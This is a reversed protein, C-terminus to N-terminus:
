VLNGLLLVRSLAGLQLVKLVTEPLQELIFRIEFELFVKGPVLILPVVELLQFIVIIALLLEINDVFYECLLTLPVCLAKYRMLTRRVSVLALLVKYFAQLSLFVPHL